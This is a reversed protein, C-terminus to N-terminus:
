QMGCYKHRKSVLIIETIYRKHLTNIYNYYVTLGLKGEQTLSVTIMYRM